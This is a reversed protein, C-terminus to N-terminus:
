PMQCYISSSLNSGLKIWNWSLGAPPNHTPDPPGVALAFGGFAAPFPVASFCGM